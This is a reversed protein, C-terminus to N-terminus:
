HTSPKIDTMNGESRDHLPRERAARQLIRARLPEAKYSAALEPTGASAALSEILGAARQIEEGAESQPALAVARDARLRWELEGFGIAAALQAGQALIQIAEPGRKRRMALIGSLHFSRIDVEKLGLTKAMGALEREVTELAPLDGGVAHITGLLYLIESVRDSAKQDRALALAETHLTVATAADGRQAATSGLNKLSLCEAVRHGHARSAELGRAFLAEASAIQNLALMVQGLSNLPYPLVWLDGISEATALAERCAAAAEGYRGTKEFVNGLNHLSPVLSGQDALSRIIGLSEEHTAIAAAYDGMMEQVLALNNLSRAIARRDGINRKLALGKLFFELAPGADGGYYHVLGLNNLAEAEMLQNGSEQGLSLAAEYVSKAKDHEGRLLHINGIKGLNDAYGSLDHLEQQIAISAYHAELAEDYEARYFHVAGMTGLAHALSRKDDIATALSRAQGAQDVAQEYEGMAYHLDAVLCLAHAQRDKRGAETAARQMALFDSLARDHDGLRMALRGRERHLRLIRDALEPAASLSTGAATAERRMADLITGARNLLSLAEANAHLRRAQDGATLLYGVASREQGAQLYQWAIAADEGPRSTRNGALFDAILRHYERRLEPIIGDSLIERILPHDFTYRDDEAHIIQHEKQCRQLSGLVQIRTVGLCAAITGSHFFMGEVAAIELVERDPAAVRSLRRTVVDHVRGPIQIREVARALRWGDEVREISGDEVLLKLTELIYFPNGATEKHLRAVFEAPMGGGPMASGIVAATQVDDLRELHIEEYHDGTTMRDLLHALPHMTRTAGSVEEPRYTGLLLGQSSPCSRALYLLLALSAEDARHLDDIHLILPRERALSLFLASIADLLHEKDAILTTTEQGAPRLFSRLIPLRGVLAPLRERIYQEFEDVDELGLCAILRGTAEIFPHYPLSGERFICRGSVYRAGREEGVRALEMVLRTKGIGAEGAVLVFGGHGAIARDLHEGLLGMERERGVLEAGFRGAKTQTTTQEMSAALAVSVLSDAPLAGLRPAMATTGKVGLRALEEHMQRGSAFRKQADKALARRVIQELLPPTEPRQLALPPPQDYAIAHMVALSNDGRFPPMGALMEYLVAGLSFTDSAPTVNQGRAQEPSMYHLTGIAIGQSTLREVTKMTGIELPELTGATFAALGFDLVKVAGDPTVMINEPKIDRHVIGRDHAAALADATGSAFRVADDIPILGKNRLLARLTRGEVYEMCIYWLGEHRNVEYITTINPHAVAACARAERNFREEVRPDAAIDKRLLKLVVRRGINTDEALLVIGMGGQGLQSLVRYHGIEKGTWDTM